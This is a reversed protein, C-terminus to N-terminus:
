FLLQKIEKLKKKPTQLEIARLDNMIKHYIETKLLKWYFYEIIVGGVDLEM